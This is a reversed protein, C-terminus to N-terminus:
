TDGGRKGGPNRGSNGGNNGEGDGPASGPRKAKNFYMAVRAARKGAAAKNAESWAQTAQEKTSKAPEDARQAVAPRARKGTRELWRKELAGEAIPKISIGSTQADWTQVSFPHHRLEDRSIVVERHADVLYDYVFDICLRYGRKRTADPVEYPARTVYGSAFVGKPELTVRHIFVRDGPVISRSFGCGWVDTVAEGAAVRKAVDPLEPWPWKRPSWILLFATM